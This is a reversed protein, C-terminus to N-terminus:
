AGTPATPLAIFVFIAAVAIRTHTHLIYNLPLPDMCATPLSPSAKAVRWNKRLVGQLFPSLELGDTQAEKRNGQRKEM